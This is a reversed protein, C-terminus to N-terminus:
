KMGKASYKKHAIVCYWAILPAIIAVILFQKDQKDLDPLNMM